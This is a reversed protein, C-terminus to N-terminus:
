MIMSTIVVLETRTILEVGIVSSIEWYSEYLRVRADPIAVIPNLLRKAKIQTQGHMM